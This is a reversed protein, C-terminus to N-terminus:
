ETVERVLAGTFVVNLFASVSAAEFIERSEDLISTMRVERVYLRPEVETDVDLFSRHPMPKVGWAGPSFAEAPTPGDTFSRGRKRDYLDLEWCVKPCGVGNNLQADAMAFGSFNLLWQGGGNADLVSDWLSACDQPAVIPTSPLGEPVSKFTWSFAAMAHFGHWEFSYSRPIRLPVQPLIHIGPQVLPALVEFWPDGAEESGRRTTVLSIPGFWRSLITPVRKGPYQNLYPPGLGAEDLVEHCDRIRQRQVDLFRSYAQAELLQAVDPRNEQRTPDFFVPRSM